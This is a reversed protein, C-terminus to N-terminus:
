WGSYRKQLFPLYMQRGVLLSARAENNTQDVDPGSAAIAVQSSLLTGLTVTSALTATITITYPGSGAALSGVMWALTQGTTAPPPDAALLSLGEPLIDTVLAEPSAVAGRNGYRLTYTVIQGPLAGSPGSLSVWLDLSASGASVEDLYVLTRLGNATEHVQFTVTV